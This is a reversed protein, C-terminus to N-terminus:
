YFEIVNTSQRSVFIDDAISSFNEKLRRAIEPLIAVETEYHGADVLCILNHADHFSHYKIDATIFADAKQAIADPICESASGGCVAVRHILKQNSRMFRFNKIKLRSAIYAFFDEQQMPTKLLGIAGVGSNTTNNSLPYVDIAPEEYPHFAKIANIVKSINWNSCIFELRQENVRELIGKTGKQPNSSESGKFTGIGESSFSCESYEGIIGEGVAFVAESVSEASETPVFVVIKSQKAELPTLFKVSNLQLQEALQFSVGSKTFDLNTHYSILNIDNKILSALLQSTKDSALNIKKLGKFLFPHHTIILNCSKELSEKLIEPTLELCILIKQIEAEPSGVQLGVNDRDWAIGPPAWDDLYKIIEKCKMVFFICKELFRM